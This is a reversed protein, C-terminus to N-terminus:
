RRRREDLRTAIIEAETERVPQVSLRATKFLAMDALSAMEKMESLLIPEDFCCRFKVDVASWKTPDKCKADYYKHKSDM